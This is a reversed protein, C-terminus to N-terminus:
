IKKYLVNPRQGNRAKMKDNYLQHGSDCSQKNEPQQIQVIGRKKKSITKTLEVLKIKNKITMAKMNKRKKM